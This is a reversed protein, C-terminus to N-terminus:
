VIMRIFNFKLLSSVAGCKLSPEVSHITKQAHKALCFDNLHNMYVLHRVNLFFYYSIWNLQLRLQNFDFDSDWLLIQQLLLQKNYCSSRSMTFWWIFSREMNANRNDHLCILIIDSKVKNFKSTFQFNLIWTVRENRVTLLLSIFNALFLSFM